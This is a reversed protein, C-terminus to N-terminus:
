TLRAPSAPGKGAVEILLFERGDHVISKPFM